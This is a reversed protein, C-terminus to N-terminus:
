STSTNGKVQEVLNTFAEIIWNKKDSGSFSKKELAPANTKSSKENENDMNVSVMITDKSEPKIMGLQNSAVREIRELSSLKVIEGQMSDAEKQLTELQNQLSHIRYNIVFVQAYYFSIITGIIFTLLVMGTMVARHRRTVAKKRRKTVRRIEEENTYTEYNDPLQERAVIM